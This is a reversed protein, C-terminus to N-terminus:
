LFTKVGVYLPRTPVKSNQRLYQYNFLNKFDEEQHAAICVRVVSARAAEDLDETRTSKISHSMSDGVWDGAGDDYVSGGGM